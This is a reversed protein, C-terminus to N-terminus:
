KEYRLFPNYQVSLQIVFSNCLILFMSVLRRIHISVSHVKYCTFSLKLVLRINNRFLLVYQRQM